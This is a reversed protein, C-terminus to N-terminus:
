TALVISLLEGGGKMPPNSGYKSSVIQIYKKSKSLSDLDIQDMLIEFPGYLIFFFFSVHM